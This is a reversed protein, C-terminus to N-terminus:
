KLAAGISKAHASLQASIRDIQTQISAIQANFASMGTPASNPSTKMTAPTTIYTLPGGARDAVAGARKWLDGYSVVKKVRYTDWSAGPTGVGFEGGSFQYGGQGKEQIGTSGGGYVGAIGYLSVGSYYAGDVPNGSSITAAASPGPRITVSGGEMRYIGDSALILGGFPGVPAPSGPLYTTFSGSVSVSINGNADRQTLPNDRGYGYSNLQQPDALLNQQEQQSIQSILGKYGVALFTPDQSTFQGRAPDYYRANLYDLSTADDAFQGIFRRDSADTGRTSGSRAM